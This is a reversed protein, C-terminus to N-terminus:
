SEEIMGMLTEDIGRTKVHIPILYDEVTNLNEMKDDLFLVNWKDYENPKIIENQILDM